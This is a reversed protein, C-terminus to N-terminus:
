VTDRIHHKPIHRCSCESWFFFRKYRRIGAHTTFTTVQRSAQDLELQQYVNSLDLQLTGAHRHM